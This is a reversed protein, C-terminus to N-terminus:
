ENSWFTHNAPTDAAYQYPPSSIFDSNFYQNNNTQKKVNGGTVAKADHWVPKSPDITQVVVRGAPGPGM